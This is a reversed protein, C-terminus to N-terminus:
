EIISLLIVRNSSWADAALRKMNPTRIDTAGYAESDLMSHDDAIFVVFNPKKTSQVENAYLPGCLFAAIPLLLLLHNM